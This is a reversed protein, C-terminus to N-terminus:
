RESARGHNEVKIASVPGSSIKKPMEDPRPLPVLERRRGTVWRRRKPREDHKKYDPHQERATSRRAIEAKSFRGLM